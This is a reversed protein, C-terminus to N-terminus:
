SWTEPTLGPEFLDLLIGLAILIGVSGSLSLAADVLTRPPHGRLARFGLWGPILFAV